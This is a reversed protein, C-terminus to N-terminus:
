WGCVLNASVAIHSRGASLNADIQSAYWTPTDSTTNVACKAKGGQAHADLAGHSYIAAAIAFLAVTLPIQSRNM